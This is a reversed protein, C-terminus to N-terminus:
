NSGQYVKRIIAYPRNKIESFIKSIYVGVIGIFLMVMGGVLWISAVVSTWGILIGDYFFWKCVLYAVFFLSLSSIFLGIFSIYLLPTSSFSTISNVLLAMKNKFSYTTEDLSHKRVRCGHQFFGTIQWLCPIAVEQDKHTILAEVYRRTMLRATTINEPIDLKTMINVLSYYGQGCFRELWNGRRKEQVGYVVDCGTHPRKKEQIEMQESFTLLWEPEEELDSDILFIKEGKAHMLGVMLAKHHGFNRSLDVVKVRHDKETITIALEISADPSGDNVMVIEYDDGALNKAVASSRVYFERINKESKYLTTVISLKMANKKPIYRAALYTNISYQCM